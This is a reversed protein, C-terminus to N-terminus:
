INDGNEKKRVFICYEAIIVFLTITAIIIWAIMRINSNERLIRKNKGYINVINAQLPLTESLEVDKKTNSMDAIGKYFLAEPVEFTEPTFNSSTIAIKQPTAFVQVAIIIEKGDIKKQGVAVGTHTFREDIINKKHKPSNMWANHQKIVDTYETALNEGAYAFDYGSQFFWEWPDVGKPSTHAFYDEEIMNDLKKQAVADLLKNEQLPKINRVIREQNVFNIINSTNILTDNQNENAVVFNIGFIIFFGFFIGFLLLQNTTRKRKLVSCRLKM